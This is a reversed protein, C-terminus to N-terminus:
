NGEAPATVADSETRSNSSRDIALWWWLGFILSSVTHWVGHFQFADDPDCLPSGTRGLLWSAAAVVAVGAIAAYAWRQFRTPVPRLRRRYIVAELVVTAAIGAGTAAIGADASVLTLGVALLATVMFTIWRHRLGPFVLYLDHVVIFVVTILIPLDHLTRSGDPQPGHFLVSGLGVAALCTAYVLSEALYGRAGVGQGRRVLAYVAIALGVAVYARSSLAHVPQVLASGQHLEECDSEGIEGALASTVAIVAPLAHPLVAGLTDVAAEVPTTSRESPECTM